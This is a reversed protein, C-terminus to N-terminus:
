LNEFSILYRDKSGEFGYELTNEDIWSYEYFMSFDKLAYMEESFNEIDSNVTNAKKVINLDKDLIYFLHIYDGQIAIKYDSSQYDVNDPQINSVVAFAYDESFGYYANPIEIERVLSGDILSISRIYSLSNFSNEVDKVYSIYVLGEQLNWLINKKLLNELYELEIESDNVKLYLKQNKYYISNSNSESIIALEESDNFLMDETNIVIECNDYNIEPVTVLRKSDEGYYRSSFLNSKFCKISPCSIGSCPNQYYVVTTEFLGQKRYIAQYAYNNAFTFEKLQPFQIELIKPAFLYQIVNILLLAMLISFVAILIKKTKM